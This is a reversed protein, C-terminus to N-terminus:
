FNWMENCGWSFSFWTWVFTRVCVGRATKNVVVSRESMRTFSYVPRPTAMSPSVERERIVSVGVVEPVRQYTYYLWVCSYDGLLRSLVPSPSPSSWHDDPILLWLESSNLMHRPAPDIFHETGESHQHSSLRKCKDFSMADYVYFAWREMSPLNFDLLAQKPSAFLCAFSFRIWVRLDSVMCSPLM